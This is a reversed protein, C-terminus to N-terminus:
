VPLVLLAGWHFGAGFAAFVVPAEIRGAARWWEAAAILMSASSTNGYRDVNVFFRAEPVGLSQAARTLLNLNAQHVLFTGVEGPKLGNRDLLETIARPMKRSAQLIVLRGNMQLPGSLELRLAEAYNGDSALLSDTIVAFGTDQSVLCAGAGDGFLITTDRNRAAAASMVETGIVLVNRYRPCLDCALAMGFLSGASAMPLDIAPVEPMGLAAGIEAAPGPFRRAASGSAVVIMGVPDTVDSLCERGAAVGMSVVTEEFSAYRRERIGSVDVIWQPDADLLGGVEVNDVIRTPLYSGFARLYAM